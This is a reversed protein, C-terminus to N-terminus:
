FLTNKKVSSDAAILELIKDKEELLDQYLVDKCKEEVEQFIDKLQLCPIDYHKALLDAFETKRSKRDGTIYINLPRHGNAQNFEKLMKEGNPEFGYRSHWEFEILNEDEEEGADEEANEEEGENTPEDTSTEKLFDYAHKHSSLLSSPLAWFNLNFLDRYLAKKPVLDSSEVSKIFGSGATRSVASILNKITRDKTEDFAFHYKKEPQLEAIKIIFKSLDNVHISPVLNSGENM